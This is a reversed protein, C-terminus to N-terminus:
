ASFAPATRAFITASAALPGRVGAASLIRSLLPVNQNRINQAVGASDRHRVELPHLILLVQEPIRLIDVVAQLAHHLRCEAIHELDM